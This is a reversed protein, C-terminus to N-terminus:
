SSPAQPGKPPPPYTAVRGVETVSVQQLKNSPPSPYLASFSWLPSLELAVTADLPASPYLLIVPKGGRLRTVLFLSSRNRINCADLRREDDLQKGGFIIRQEEIPVGQQDQIKLKVSLITDGAGCTITHTTGSLNKVYITM